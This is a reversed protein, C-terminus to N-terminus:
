NVTTKINRWEGRKGDAWLYIRCQSEYIKFKKRDGTFTDSDAIRPFTNKVFIILTIIAMVSDTLSAVRKKGKVISM